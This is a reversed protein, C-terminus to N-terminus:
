PHSSAADILHNLVGAEVIYETPIDNIHTADDDTLFVGIKQRIDLQLHKLEDISRGQYLKYIQEFIKRKEHMLMPYDGYCRRHLENYLNNSKAHNHKEYADDYAALLQTNHMRRVEETDHNDEVNDRHDASLHMDDFTNPVNSSSSSRSVSGISQGFQASQQQKDYSPPENKHISEHQREDDHYPHRYSPRNCQPNLVPKSQLQPHNPFRIHDNPAHGNITPHHSFNYGSPEDDPHPRHILINVAAIEILLAPQVQDINLIDPETIAAILSQLRQYEQNLEDAGLASYKQSSVAFEMLIEPSKLPGVSKGHSRQTMEHVIFNRM